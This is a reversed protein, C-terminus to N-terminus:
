MRPRPGGTSQNRGGNGGGQSGVEVENGNEDTVSGGSTNYVGTVDLESDGGAYIANVEIVVDGGEVFLDGNSDIGDGQSQLRITGNTIRVFGAEDGANIADDLVNIDLDGGNITITSGEIGEYANEVTLVMTNIVLNVDAHVADDGSLIYFIGDEIIMNGNAHIADEYSSVFFEGNHVILDGTKIGKMSEELLDTPQITNGSGEGVTIENLVEVFGGGANIDFKGGDIQMVQEASLGDNKSVIHYLGNEIILNGKEVEEDNSAKIGDKGSSVTINGEKIAVLDKGVIGDEVANVTINGSDIVLDDRSNIGDQYLTSVALSGTGAIATDAKSYIAASPFELDDTIVAGQEIVNEGELILVVDKAEIVYIPTGTENIISANNLVLYVVGEDITKDVDVTISNYEGSFEYTGSEQILIDKESMVAPSEGVEAIFATEPYEISAIEINQVEEPVTEEVYQSENQSTGNNNQLIIQEDDGGCASSFTAVVMAIYIFSIKTRM